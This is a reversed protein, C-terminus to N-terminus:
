FQKEIAKIRSAHRIQFCFIWPGSNRETKLFHRDLRKQKEHQQCLGSIKYKGTVGDNQWSARTIQQKERLTQFKELNHNPTSPGSCATPRKLTHM